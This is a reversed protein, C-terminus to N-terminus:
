VVAQNIIIVARRLAYACDKSNSPTQRDTRRDRQHIRDLRVFIDDCKKTPGTAGDNYNKQGGAGIGLEM